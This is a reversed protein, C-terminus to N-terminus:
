YNDNHNLFAAFTAFLMTAVIMALRVIISALVSAYAPGFTGYDALIKFTGVLSGFHYVGIPIAAFFNFWIAFKEYVRKRMSLIAVVLAIVLIPATFLFTIVTWIESSSISQPYALSIIVEPLLEFSLCLGLAVSVFLSIRKVM